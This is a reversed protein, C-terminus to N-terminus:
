RLAEQCTAYIARREAAGAMAPNIRKTTADFEGGSMFANCGMASWFWGASLAAGEAQSVLDPQSLYAKSLADGAARYNDAFTLQFLGRGRYRWGDGSATDRNGNRNAYVTNALGQPNKILKAADSLSGVRTSFIARVREPTSYYLNEELCVFGRSEHMAQAIFGAQQQVTLIDFRNAAAALLPAFVKAQTPQVGCAILRAIDIM